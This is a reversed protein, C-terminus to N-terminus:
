AQVAVVLSPVFFGGVGTEWEDFNGKDTVLWNGTDNHNVMGTGVVDIRECWKNCKPVKIRTLYIKNQKQAINKEIALLSSGSGQSKSEISPDLPIVSQHKKGTQGL